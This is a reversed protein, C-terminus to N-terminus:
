TTFIEIQFITNALFPCGWDLKKKKMKVCMLSYVLFVFKHTM